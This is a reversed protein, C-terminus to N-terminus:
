DRIAPTQSTTKEMNHQFYLKEDGYRSSVVPATLILQGLLQSNSGSENRAYIDYIAQGVQLQALQQRFDDAVTANQMLAQASATPRLLLQYPTHPTAVQTGDPLVSAFHELTLRGPNPDKAGFVIAVHGFMKDLLRTSFSQAPPLINSFPQAFFNHGTQGDVSYMLHLNRSPQNGDIFVKLALAPISTDATPKTAMSFRGIVCEAGRQFIGSNNSIAAPNVVWRMRAEAGYSHLLKHRGAELEDGEAALAKITFSTRALTFLDLIGVSTLPPLQAYRSPLIMDSWMADAKQCATRLPESLSPHATPRPDASQCGTAALAFLGVMRLFHKNPRM